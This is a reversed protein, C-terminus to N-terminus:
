KVQRALLQGHEAVLRHVRADVGLLEVRTGQGFPQVEVAQLPVTAAAGEAHGHVALAPIRLPRIWFRYLSDATLGLPRYGLRPLAANRADKRYVVLYPTQYRNLTLEVGLLRNMMVNFFWDDRIPRNDLTAVVSGRPLYKLHDIGALLENQRPNNGTIGRRIQWGVGAMTVLGIVLALVRYRTRSPQRKESWSRLAPVQWVALALVWAPMSSFVYQPNQRPTLCLPLIGCVGLALLFYSTRRLVRSPTQRTLVVLVATLLLPPALNILLVKWVFWRGWADITQSFYAGRTNSLSRVVQKEFFAEWFERFPEHLFWGLLFLGTPIGVLGMTPWVVASIFSRAPRVLVKYLLPAAWLFLIFPGKTLIGLFIALGAWYWGDTRGLVLARLLQFLGFTGFALLPLELLNGSLCYRAYFGTGLWLIPLWGWPTGAEPQIVRWCRLLLYGIVLLWLGSVLEEIWWQDGFLMFFFTEIWVGLPPSDVYYDGRIDPLWYGDPQSYRLQWWTGKGEALNRALIAYTTGDVHTGPTLLRPGFVLIVAGFTVWWALRNLRNVPLVM